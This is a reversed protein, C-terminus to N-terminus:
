DSPSVNEWHELTLIIMGGLRKAQAQLALRHKEHDPKEKSDNSLCALVVASVDEYEMIVSCEPKCSMGVVASFKSMRPKDHTRDEFHTGRFFIYPGVRLRPAENDERKRFIELMGQDLASAPEDFTAPWCPMVENGWSPFSSAVVIDGAELDTWLGGVAATLLFKKVSLKILMEVQLRVMLRVAPSFTDENMHIRGRLVIVRRTKGLLKMTGLELRREHGEVEGLLSFADLEILKITHTAEFEVADGWGTGLVVAIPIEENPGPEFRRRIENVTSELLATTDYVPDFGLLGRLCNAWRNRTRLVCTRKGSRRYYDARKM